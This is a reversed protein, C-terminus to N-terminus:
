GITTGKFIKPTLWDPEAETIIGEGYPREEQSPAPIPTNNVVSPVTFIEQAQVQPEGRKAGADIYTAPSAPMLASLDFKPGSNNPLPPFTNMPIQPQAMQAQVPQSFGTASVNFGGAQPKQGGAKMLKSVTEYTDASAHVSTLNSTVDFIGTILNTAIDNQVILGLSQLISAMIESISSTSSDVVNTQGFNGNNQQNDINVLHASGFVQMNNLYINGLSNLSSAGIIFLLSSASSGTQYHPVIKSPQFSQGPLVKFVLNLNNGEVNYDLKELSPVSGGNPGQAAVGEMTLIFDGSQGSPLNKQIKDIGFLHAQGVLINDECVIKIEKGLQSLSLFLALGAALHDINSGVPLVITTNSTNPLITKLNQLQNDYNM